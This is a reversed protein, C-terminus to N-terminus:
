FTCWKGVNKKRIKEYSFLVLLFPIPFASPGSNWNSMTIKQESLSRKKNTYICSQIHAVGSVITRWVETSGARRMFISLLYLRTNMEQAVFQIYKKKSNVNLTSCSSTQHRKLGVSILAECACFQPTCSSLHFSNLQSITIKTATKM